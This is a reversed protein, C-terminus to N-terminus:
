KGAKAGKAKKKVIPPVTGDPSAWMGYKHRYQAPDMLVVDFDGNQVRERLNMLGDKLAVLENMLQWYEPMRTTTLAEVTNSVTWLAGNSLDLDAIV